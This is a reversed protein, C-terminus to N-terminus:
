RYNHSSCVIIKRFCAFLLLFYYFFVRINKEWLCQFIFSVGRRTDAQATNLNRKGGVYNVSTLFSVQFLHSENDNETCFSHLVIDIMSIGCPPAVLYVM